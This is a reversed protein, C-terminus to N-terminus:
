TMSCITGTSRRASICSSRVLGSPPATMLVFERPPSIGGIALEGHVKGALERGASGNRLAQIPRM